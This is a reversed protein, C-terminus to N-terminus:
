LENIEIGIEQQKEADYIALQKNKHAVAVADDIDDFSLSYDLYIKGNEDNLWTGLNGDTEPLQKHYFELTEKTFLYQNIIMEFQSIAVIYRGARTSDSLATTSGGNKITDQIIGAYDLQKM